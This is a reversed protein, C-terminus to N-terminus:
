SAFLRLEAQSQRAVAIDLWPTFSQMVSPAPTAALEAIVPLCASLVRQAELAGVCGLRVAAACVGSATAYGSM